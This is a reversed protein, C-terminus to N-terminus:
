KYWLEYMVKFEDKWITVIVCNNSFMFDWGAGREGFNRRLWKVMENPNKKHFSCDYSYTIKGNGDHRTYDRSGQNDHWNLIPRITQGNLIAM